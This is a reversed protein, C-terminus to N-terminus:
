KSEEKARAELAEQILLEVTPKFARYEAAAIQQIQNCQQETFGINREVKDKQKM